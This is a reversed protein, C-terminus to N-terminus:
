GSKQRTEAGKCDTKLERHLGNETGYEADAEFGKSGGVGCLGGRSEGERLTWEERGSAEEKKAEKRRKRPRKRREGTGERQGRRLEAGVANRATSEVTESPRCTSTRMLKKAERPIRIDDFAIAKGREKGGESRGEREGNKERGREKRLKEMRRKGNSGRCTGRVGAPSGVAWIKEEHVNAAIGPVDSRFVGRAAIKLNADCGSPAKDLAQRLVTECRSETFGHRTLRATWSQPPVRAARQEDPKM